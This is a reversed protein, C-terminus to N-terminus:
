LNTYFLEHIREACPIQLVEIIDPNCSLEIYIEGLIKIHFFFEQHGQVGFSTITSFNRKKTVRRVKHFTRM